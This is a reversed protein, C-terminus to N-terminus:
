QRAAQGQWVRGEQHGGTGAGDGIHGGDGCETRGQRHTSGEHSVTGAGATGREGGTGDAQEGGQGAKHKDSPQTVTIRAAMGASGVGDVRHVVADEEGGQRLGGAQNM